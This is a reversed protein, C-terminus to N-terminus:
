MHKQKELKMFGDWEPVKPSTEKSVPKRPLRDVVVTRLNDLIGGQGEGM